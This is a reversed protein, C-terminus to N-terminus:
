KVKTPKVPLSILRSFDKLESNYEIPFNEGNFYNKCIINEFFEKVESNKNDYLPIKKAKKSFSIFAKHFKVILKDMHKICSTESTVNKVKCTNEEKLPYFCGCIINSFLITSLMISILLKKM